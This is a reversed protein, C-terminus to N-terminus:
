EYCIVSPKGDPGQTSEGWDCSYIDGECDAAAVVAVCGDGETCCVWIDPEGCSGPDKCRGCHEPHETCFDPAPRVPLLVVAISAAAALVTLSALAYLSRRKTTTM